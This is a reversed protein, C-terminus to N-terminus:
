KKAKTTPADTIIWSLAKESGILYLGAALIDEMASSEVFERTIDSGLNFNRVNDTYLFNYLDLSSRGKLAAERAQTLIKEMFAKFTNEYIIRMTKSLTEKNFWTLLSTCYTTKHPTHSMRTYIIGEQNCWEKILTHSQSTQPSIFVFFNGQKSEEEITGLVKKMLEKSMQTRAELTLQRLEEIQSTYSMM